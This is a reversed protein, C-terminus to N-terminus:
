GGGGAETLTLGSLDYIRDETSGDAGTATYHLKQTDKDTVRIVCLGDEDLTVPGHTGGILELTITDGEGAACHVALYNGSQETEDGSFGTYGTVYLLTGSIANGSVTVEEQLDTVSMGLLDVSSEIDASLTM